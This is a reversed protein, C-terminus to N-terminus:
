FPLVYVTVIMHVINCCIGIILLVMVERVMVLQDFTTENGAGLAASFVAGKIDAPITDKESIHDDFRRKSEAVMDPDGYRGLQGIVLSRFM